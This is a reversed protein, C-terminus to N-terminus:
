QETEEAVQGSQGWRRAAVDEGFEWPPRFNPKSASRHAYKEDYQSQLTLRLKTACMAAARSERDAAISLRNYREFGEGEISQGALEANIERIRCVHGCMAELLGYHEPRFWGVPMREVVTRWEKAEAERLYAPPDPRTESAKALSAVLPAIQREAESKRGRNEM